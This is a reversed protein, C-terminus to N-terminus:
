QAPPEPLVKMWGGPCENVYPYYARTAACYYWVNNAAGPAATTVPPPTQEIYVPPTREVVIPAYPPYYYYPRPYYAPGWMPGVVVSVHGRHHGRAWAADIGVSALLALAVMVHLFSRSKM